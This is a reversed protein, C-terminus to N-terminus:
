EKMEVLDEVCEPLGVPDMDWDSNDDLWICGCINLAIWFVVGGFWLGALYPHSAMWFMGPSQGIDHSACAVVNGVISAVSSMWAFTCFWFLARRITLKVNLEFKM